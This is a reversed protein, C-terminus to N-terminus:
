PLGLRKKIEAKAVESFIAIGVGALGHLREKTKDWIDPDTIDALFEHGQWTLRSISPMGRIGDGRLYGAEVLLNLHYAVEEYSHGLQEVDSQELRIWSRGDYRPDREIEFLLERILDMNRLM